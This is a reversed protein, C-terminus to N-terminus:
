RLLTIDGTKRLKTGDTFEVDLTYAYVDMPQLKGKYTGDWGAKISGSQFVMQGQRNFIRWQMKGIGFGEVKVVANRGGQAPTFANPVDLLPVIIVPVDRWATDTCGAATYAILEVRFTDTANYQHLPNTLTSSEGDGFNWLYRIAGSSTNTFQVPTNEVPPNPGWTFAATPKSEVTITFYASTDRLNCTTLDEAILRVRYTGPNLYTHTPYMDTSANGDGFEWLFDTGALSTNDFTAQYPACGLAPTTFQAKVLSNIRITDQIFDPANCFAPDIMTLRVIYTGPGPYTHDRPPNLSTTDPPSGDGYDWVFARPGFSGTTPTSTNTFRMTTSECPPLKTFTFGLNAKNDGVIINVYATDRINCTSSDEAILMVLYTGVATFTHATDAVTTTIRPSGDGFDWYFKKGKRLTDSFKVYLPVCGITDNKVADISARVSAGVGAYNMEIKVVAQNCGGNSGNSLGGATLPFTGLNGCNACIAQYIVGNEDFRSTGGDVHDGAGSNEGFHSGFLQSTANREMVFFYFDRSDAAPIGTLRNVEPLGATTGTTYEQIVNIGGGWGSVYVNECRDVLFAVPSINPVSIPTGFVTSYVYASFDQQLKSIFQKGGSNRFTANVIPWTGTTTGMVYPFGARDFKLGYVLDTGTGGLYTTRIIASGDNRMQTVFGDAFGGGFSGSIVGTKDGPINTSATAGAIFLDGTVPSISAVFCADDANGGFYTSFLVATLNPNFKLIVGDQMGGFTSQVANTMPFDGSQTCSALYINNAADLIVESRADDGYNRRLSIAANPIPPYKPRINVGDDASGGIKISGLKLSGSANLKVVVIDYDTKTTTPTGPFNTSNSRGAIVLNGQNDTIMSHPQENRLGGLYTAYAKNGTPSFKYIAMDYGGVGGEIVGGGYATQTAGATVPYGTGFSIGGAFISGDPGPTATFGWNDASSGTFSSFILTPDIILTATRDYAGVKFTVVNGKVVYRCDVEQSKGTHSQYSYPYMEKVDGVPTAIVLEKEKVTISTPGVYEMAIFDPNGGPKVIFDYKLRGGASYYRLDINPYIEKYTIAEYVKCDTGWKAP